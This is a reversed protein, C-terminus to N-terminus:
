NSVYGPIKELIVDVTDGDMVGKLELINENRRKLTGVFEKDKLRLPYHWMSRLTGEQEDFSYEGHARRKRDNYYFVLEGRDIYVVSLVSDSCAVNHTGRVSYKGTFRPHKNPVGIIAILLLPVVIISIRGFFKIVNSAHITEQPDQKLFFDVLRTYDLLLLYILGAFLILAHVLVGLEIDYFFDLLIINLMIPILVIVALLRTRNFLLMFSGIIQSVAIVSIFGVSRGFYAWLLWRKSIEMFPEDMMAMPAYFQFGFFKQVGFAALDFAIGYRLAGIWFARMRDEDGRWVVAAIMFGVLIAISLGLTVPPPIIPIFRNAIRLFTEGCVLGALLCVLLKQKM